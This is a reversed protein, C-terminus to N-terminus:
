LPNIKLSFFLFLFILFSVNRKKALSDLESLHCIQPLFTTLFDFFFISFENSFLLFFCCFFFRLGSFKKLNRKGNPIKSVDLWLRKGEWTPQVDSGLVELSSSAFGPVILVPFRPKAGDAAFARGIRKTKTTAKLYDVYFQYQNGLMYRSRESELPRTSSTKRSCDINLKTMRPDVLLEFLFTFYRIICRYDLFLEIM